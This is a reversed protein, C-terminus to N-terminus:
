VTRTTTVSSAIDDTLLRLHLRELNAACILETPCLQVRRVLLAHAREIDDALCASAAAWDLLEGIIEVLLPDRDHELRAPSETSSEEEALEALEERVADLRWAQGPCSELQGPEVAERWPRTVNAGRSHRPEASVRTGPMRALLVLAEDGASGPLEAFEVEGRNLGILGLELRGIYLHLDVTARVEEAVLLYDVLLPHMFAGSVSAIDPEM